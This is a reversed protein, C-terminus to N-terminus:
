MMSAAVAIILNIAIMLLSGYKGLARTFNVFKWEPTSIKQTPIANPISEDLSEQTKKIETLKLEEYVIGVVYLLIIVTLIYLLINIVTIFGSINILLSNGVLTAMAGWIFLIRRQLEGIPQTGFLFVPIMIIVWFFLIEM